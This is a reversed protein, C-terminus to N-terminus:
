ASAGWVKPWRHTIRTLMMVSHGVDCFEALDQQIADAAPGDLAAVASELDAHWCESIGDFPFDVPPEAVSLNLAFRNVNGAADIAQRALAAHARNWRQAFSERSLGAKRPLFRFTAIEVAPGDILLNETCFFSFEPTYRDFVRLEDEDIRAREDKSFGSGNLADFTRSSAVSVGDHETSIGALGEVEPDDIRNCYRMWDIKAELVPFQSAYIAHSRWTRPWDERAVTAARRALYILKCANM